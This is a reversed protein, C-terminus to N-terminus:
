EGMAANVLSRATIRLEALAATRGAEHARALEEAGLVDAVARDFREDVLLEDHSREAGLRQRRADAASWLFAADFPREQAAAAGGLLHICEAQMRDDGLEEYITLAEGLREAAEDGQDRLLAIEGLGHLASAAHVANGLERALSLCEALAAGAADLDGDHLAALGLNNTSNAVLLPDDMARRLVLSEEYLGVARRYDGRADALVALTNLAQSLSRPEGTKRAATLAQKGTREAEGLSGGPMLAFCLDCRAFVGSRDDGLQDFLGLAEELRPIAATHDSQAMAQRAATWLAKARVEASVQEATDLGAHLWGRAESVHSHAWWFRDLAAIARLAEEVRGSALSWDLAARMNDHERELRELWRLQDQGALPDEASVALELFREAHEARLDELRNEAALRALACERVTKLMHFRVDGNDAPRSRLLSAAVLEEADPLFEAGAGSMARADELSCGGAFVALSAHLHRQSDSLLRYSWDITAHLTRQRKPLDTPGEVALALGEEVARLLSEPALIHLRAAVLEIALPLGDVRRCIEQVDQESGPELAAGRAAAFAGFLRTADAVPLPDLQVVHEGRLGLPRRSTALVQPGPTRQLLRAIGPGAPTLQELNDLVLLVRRSALARELTPVITDGQQKVGLAHAIETLVLDPDDLSALDVFVAGDVIDTELRRGAELALRTKGVGGPGTVTVLRVAPDRFLSEVEVLERERGVLPTLPQPLPPLRDREPPGPDAEGTLIRRETERLEPGPEIGLEEVLAQRTERYAELAEAQRGSRYLALMLQGSLRERYRHESVLGQLEPVLEVHRGVALGAEIRGEVAQLRLEELRSAEDRLAPVFGVDALPPGRWLALAQDYRGSRVLAEFRGADLSGPELRLAYGPGQTELAEAGLGRRLRAVYTQVVKTASSPPEEPWLEDILRSVLVAENAHLALLALLARQQPGGLAVPRGDRVAAVPGLITIEM